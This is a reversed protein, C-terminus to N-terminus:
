IFHESVGIKVATKESQAYYNQHSMMYVTYRLMGTISCTNLTSTPIVFYLSHLPQQCLPCVIVHVGGDQLQPLRNPINPDAKMEFM